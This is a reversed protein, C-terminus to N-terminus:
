TVRGIVRLLQCVSPIPILLSGPLPPRQCAGRPRQSCEACNCRCVSARPSVPLLASLVVSSAASPFCPLFSLFSCPGSHCGAFHFLKIRNSTMTLIGVLPFCHPAFVQRCTSSYVKLYRYKAKRKQSIKVKVWFLCIITSELESLLKLSGFEPFSDIYEEHSCGNSNSSISHATM